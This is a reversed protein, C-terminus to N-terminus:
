DKETEVQLLYGNHRADELTDASKQEAIEYPYLGAIGRGTHHISTTIVEATTATHGYIRELVDVVYDMPTSDDNLFVVKWQKPPLIELFNDITTQTDQQTMKLRKQYIPCTM